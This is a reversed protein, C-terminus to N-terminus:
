QNDFNTGTFATNDHTAGPTEVSFFKYPLDADFIAQVHISFVRSRGCYTLVNPVETTSPKKIRIQLGDLAGVCGFLGVIVGFGNFDAHRVKWNRENFPFSLACNLLQERLCM